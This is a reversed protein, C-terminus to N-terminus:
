SCFFKASMERTVHSDIQTSQVPLTVGTNFDPEVFPELEMVNATSTITAEPANEPTADEEDPAPDLGM